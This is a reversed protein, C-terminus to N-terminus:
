ISAYKPMSGVNVGTGIIFTLENMEFHEHWTNDVGQAPVLDIIPRETWFSCFKPGCVLRAVVYRGEVHSKHLTLTGGCLDSWRLSPFCERGLKGQWYNAAVMQLLWEASDGGCVEHFHILDLIVVLWLKTKIAMHMNTNLPSNPLFALSFCLFCFLFIVHRLSIILYM